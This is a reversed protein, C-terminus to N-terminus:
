VWTLQVKKIIEEWKIGDTIVSIRRGEKIYEFNVWLAEQVYEKLPEGWEWLVLFGNNLLSEIELNLYEYLPDDVRYGDVHLVKLNQYYRAILFSPSVVERQWGLGRLVGRAFTTKGSGLPGTLGIFGGSQSSISKLTLALSQSWNETEEASKSVFTYIM